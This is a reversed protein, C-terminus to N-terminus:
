ILALSALPLAFHGCENCKFCRDTSSAIMRQITIRNEPNLEIQCFSGGRVNDIGYKQMYKLTYKDEDFGDCDPVLEILQIPKYKKTFASGKHDNHDEIRHFPVNTKGIYYKSSELELAYIFVM